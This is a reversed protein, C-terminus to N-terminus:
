VIDNRIGRTNPIPSDEGVWIGEYVCRGLHEAFHGYINRHIVPGAQDARLVLKVEPRSAPRSAPQVSPQSQATGPLAVSLAVSLLLSVSVSLSRSLSRTASLTPSRLITVRAALSSLLTPM